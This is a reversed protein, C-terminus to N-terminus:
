DKIQGVGWDLISHHDEFWNQSERRAVSIPVWMADSTEVIGAVGGTDELPAFQGSVHPLPKTDDLRFLFATTFTRGRLSRGPDDFEEKAIISGALIQKTIEEWRKGEALRLGTEEVTEDIAAQKKTQKPKVHGGPLAWLGKGPMNARVVVLVHGSQIIVADATQYSPEYNAGVFRHRRKYDEIFDYEDKLTAWEQTTVFSRLFKITTPPVDKWVSSQLGDQTFLHKRLTTANLDEGEPVAAKLDSKWQPFAHLYWCSDDRDSGTISIEVAVDDGIRTKIAADVEEQVSQIWKADNYPQDRLPAFHIPTRSIRDTNVYDRIMGVREDYTFPNKITRAQYASGVLIVLLDCSEMAKNVVEAHGLHFPQFRGIYVKVKLVM